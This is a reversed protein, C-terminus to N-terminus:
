DRRVGYQTLYADMRAKNADDLAIKGDITRNHLIDRINFANTVSFTPIGYAKRYSDIATMTGDANTECRDAAIIVGDIHANPAHALINERAEIKTAGTTFVDEIVLGRDDDNPKAGVIDVTIGTGEGHAKSEKRDSGCRVDIGTLEYFKVATNSALSIGKYAPGWFYTPKPIQETDTIHKILSAYAEALRKMGSGTNIDGLNLFYPSMRGSKLKFPGGFKLAGQRFLFEVFDIEFQEFGM